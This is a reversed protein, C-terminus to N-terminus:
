LVLMCFSLLSQTTRAAEAVTSLPLVCILVPGSFSSRDTEQLSGNRRISSLSVFIEQDSSEMLRAGFAIM